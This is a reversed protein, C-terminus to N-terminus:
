LIIKDDPQNSSIQRLNVNYNKLFHIKARELILRSASSVGRGSVIRARVLDNKTPYPQFFENKLTSELQEIAHNIDRGKLELFIAVGSNKKVVAVFKDCKSGKIIAKGDIPYVMANLPECIEVSYKM